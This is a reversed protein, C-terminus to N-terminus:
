GNTSANDSCTYGEGELRDIEDGTATCVDEYVTDTIVAGSELTYDREAQCQYCKSCSSLLLVIGFLAISFLAKM